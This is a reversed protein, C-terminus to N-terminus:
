GLHEEKLANLEERKLQLVNKVVNFARMADEVPINNDDAYAMVAQVSDTAVIENYFWTDLQDMLGTGATKVMHAEAQEAERDEREADTLGDDEQHHFAEGNNPLTDDFPTTDNM